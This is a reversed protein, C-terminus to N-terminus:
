PSSAQASRGSLRKAKGNFAAETLEDKFCKIM